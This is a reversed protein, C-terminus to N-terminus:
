LQVKPKHQPRPPGPIEVKLDPVVLEDPPVGYAFVGTQQGYYGAHAALAATRDLNSQQYEGLYRGATAGALAALCVISIFTVRKM